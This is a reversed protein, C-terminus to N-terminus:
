IKSAQTKMLDIFWQESITYATYYAAIGGVLVEGVRFLIMRGGSFPGTLTRMYAEDGINPHTVGLYSENDLINHYIRQAKSVTDYVAVFVEIIASDNATRFDKIADNSTYVSPSLYLVEGETWAGQIESATLIIESAEKQTQQQGGLCGALGTTLLVIAIVVIALRKM